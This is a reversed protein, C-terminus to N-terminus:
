VIERRDVVNEVEKQPLCILAKLEHKNLNWQQLTTGFRKQFAAPRAGIVQPPIPFPAARLYLSSLILPAGRSCFRM